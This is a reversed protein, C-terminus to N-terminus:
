PAFAGLQAQILPFNVVELPMAFTVVVEFSDNPRAQALRADLSDFIKNGDLDALGMRAQVPLGGAAPGNAGIRAPFPAEGATIADARVSVSLGCTLAISL